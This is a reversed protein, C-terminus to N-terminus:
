CLVQWIIVLLYKKILIRKNETLKGSFNNEQCFYIGIEVLKQGMKLFKFFYMITFFLLIIYNIM